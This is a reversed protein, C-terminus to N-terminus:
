HAYMTGLFNGNMAGTSTQIFHYGVAYGFAFTNFVYEWDSRGFVFARGYTTQWLLFTPDCSFWPNFHVDEIRGLLPHALIGLPAGLITTHAFSGIDTTADVFIGINIPQGQVRAIYHRHAAVASIGSISNYWM